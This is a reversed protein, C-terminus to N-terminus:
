AGSRRDRLYSELRGLAEVLVASEPLFVIRAHDPEPWNFGTGQVLLVRKERLFSRVFEKDDQIRYMSRDFKPFCYMAGCPKVCSVGPMANLADWCLDRQLALRGRPATATRIPASDALSAPIAHQAPVNSCLRMNCLMEIGEVYSSLPGMDGSALMWAGRYGAAFSSKSIGNLTFVPHNGAISAFPVHSAGDYLVRDYIEDAFVIIGKRAALDAIQALREEGYLAGTPNNPNIVVIAKARPGAKAEMDAVDPNWGAAEDCRYHVPKGGSLAVSATWLPYDPAPILVEDGPDLLAQMCISIFESVGNGLFVREPGIGRVGKALYYDAVSKRADAFGRSDSYGDSSSLAAAMDARLAEPAHFGFPAPNGINLKLIAAGGEELRRAEDMVPGRIDYCVGDLRRSKEIRRM